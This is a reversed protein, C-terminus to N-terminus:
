SRSAQQIWDNLIADTYYASSTSIGLKVIVDNKIDNSTTLM